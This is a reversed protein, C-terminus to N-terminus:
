DKDATSPRRIIDDPSDLLPDRSVLTFGGVQDYDVVKNLTKLAKLFENLRRQEGAPLAGGQMLTSYSRLRRAFSHKHDETTIKWPRYDKHSMQPRDREIGDRKRWYSVTQRKVHYIDAIAQDTLGQRVLSELTEKGPGGNAKWPRNM